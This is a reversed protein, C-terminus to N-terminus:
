EPPPTTTPSPSGPPTSGTLSSGRPPTVALRADDPAGTTKQPSGPAPEAVASPAPNASSGNDAGGSELWKEYDRLRAEDDASSQKNRKYKTGDFLDAIVRIGGFYRGDMVKICALASIEEKFRVMVVGDAEADYVTVNTVEGVKECEGRVDEAIDLLLTPSEAMERLTFMHKLVVVRSFSALKKESPGSEFWDLKRDLKARKRQATKKDLVLKSQAAAKKEEDSKERFQAQAVKIPPNLVSDEPRDSYLPCEDQLHIALEVSEPKYYTVLADGKPQKTTPDTYIKVKPLGTALDEMIIGYKSFTTALQAATVTTPLNSLYISSVVQKPKAAAATASAPPPAIRRRKQDNPDDDDAGILNEAAAM